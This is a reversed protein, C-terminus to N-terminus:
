RKATKNRIGVYKGNATLRSDEPYPADSPIALARGNLKAAGRIRGNRCLVKIQEVSKGHKRAYERISIYDSRTGEFLQEFPTFDLLVLEDYFTIYAYIRASDFATDDQKWIGHSGKKMATNQDINRFDTLFMKLEAADAKAITHDPLLILYGDTGNLSIVAAKQGNDMVEM